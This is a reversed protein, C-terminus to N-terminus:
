NLNRRHRICDPLLAKMAEMLSNSLAESPPCCSYMWPACGHRWTKVGTRFCGDPASARLQELMPGSGVMLLRTEPYTHRVRAFADLLLSLGKEPRLACVIGIVVGRGAWPLPVRDGERRFVTTDVGNYVLRVKSSPVGDGAALERAVAKSNVVIGHAIRDTLQLLRRTGGVDVLPPGKARSCWRCAFSDRWRSRSSISRCTSPTSWGIRHTALYAGMRRAGALASRHLLRSGLELDAGAERLERARFGGATFCGVHPEFQARDLALATETLQRETGGLDLERALLLSQIPWSTIISCM